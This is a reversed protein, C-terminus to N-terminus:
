EMESLICGLVLIFAKMAVPRSVEYARSGGPSGLQRVDLDLVLASSFPGVENSCLKAM